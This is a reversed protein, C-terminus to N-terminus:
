GDRPGYGSGYTTDVYGTRLPSCAMAAREGALTAALAALEFFEAVDDPDGASHVEAAASEAMKALCSWCLNGRAFARHKCRKLPM